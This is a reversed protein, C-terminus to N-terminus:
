KERSRPEKVVRVVNYNRTAPHSIDEIQVGQKRSEEIGASILGGMVRAFTTEANVLDASKSWDRHTWFKCTDDAALLLGEERAYDLATCISEHVQVFRTAYQTKTFSSGLWCPTGASRFSTLGIAFTECGECPRVVIVYGHRLMVATLELAFAARYFTLSFPV